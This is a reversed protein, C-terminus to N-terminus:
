DRGIVKKIMSRAREELCLWNYKLMYQYRYPKDWIGQYVCRCLDETPSYQLSSRQTKWRACWIPFFDLFLDRELKERDEQTLQGNCFYPGLLQFYNDYFVHYLGYSVNKGRVKQTYSLDANVLVMRNKCSALELAKRVQWLMLEAGATDEAIGQCETDWISFSGISTMWYSVCLIGERFNKEEYLERGEHGMWCLYPKTDQYRLVADCMRRLSGERFCLTDNCLRRLIGNARSLALPFNDNVINRENRFYLINEFREAYERGVKETDDSSANDSIVIEVEGTKFENQCIITEISNRLYSARNYTPICLSLYPTPM